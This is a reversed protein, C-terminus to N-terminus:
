TSNTVPGSATDPLTSQRRRERLRQRYRTIEEFVLLFHEPTEFRLSAWDLIECRMRKAFDVIFEAAPRSRVFDWCQLYGKALSFRDGEIYAFGDRWETAAASLLQSALRMDLPVRVVLKGQTVAGKDFLGLLQPHIYSM